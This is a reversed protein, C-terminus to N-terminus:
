FMLTPETVKWLTPSLLRLALKGAIPFRKRSQAVSKMKKEM